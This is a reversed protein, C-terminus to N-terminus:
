DLDSDSDASTSRHVSDLRHAFGGPRWALYVLPVTVALGIAAPRADGDFILLGIIGTLVGGPVAYALPHRRVWVAFANRSEVAPSHRTARASDRRSPIRSRIVGITSTADSGSPLPV